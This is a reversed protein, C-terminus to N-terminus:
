KIVGWVKASRYGHLLLAMETGPLVLIEVGEDTHVSLSPQSPVGPLVTSLATNPPRLTVYLKSVRKSRPPSTTLALKGLADIGPDGQRTSLLCPSLSPPLSSLSTSVSSCLANPSSPSRTHGACVGQPSPSLIALVDFGADSAQKGETVWLPGGHPRLSQLPM